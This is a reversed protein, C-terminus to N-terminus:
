LIGSVKLSEAIVAHIKAAYAPSMHTGDVKTPTTAVFSPCMGSPNCFWPRADMWVGNVKEALQKEAEGMSTWSKNVTGTCRSPSSSRKSYCDKINMDGPPPSMLVVKQTNPRFKDLIVSVSDAYDTPTMDSNAGVVRDTRYWNSVVVVSPKTSNIFDVAYQKRATCNDFMDDRQILADMFACSGMALNHLQIQGGSDLAIQRLSVAYGLAVSDGVLVIQIPAAPSGWSCLGMNPAAEDQTCPVDDPSLLGAQIVAEMPPDFQPWDTTQLAAAIEGQLAAEAPGSPAAPPAAAATISTEGVQSVYPPPAHQCGAILGVTALLAAASLLRV